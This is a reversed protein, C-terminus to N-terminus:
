TTSPPDSNVLAKSTSNSSQTTTRGSRMTILSIGEVRRRQFVRYRAARILLLNFAIGASAFNIPLMLLRPFSVISYTPKTGVITAILFMLSTITYLLGSEVIVQSAFQLQYKSSPSRSSVQWIRLTIASTLYINIVITCALFALTSNSIGRTLGPDKQIISMIGWYTGIIICVITGLWLIAPLIIVTWKRGYIVWCRYLLVCDTIALTLREAIYMIVFSYNMSVGNNLMGLTIMASLVLDLTSFLLIALTVGLLGCKIDKRRTWGEDSFALWRVCHLSTSFYVGYLLAQVTLVIVSAEQPTSM